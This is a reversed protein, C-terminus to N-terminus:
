VPDQGAYPDSLGLRALIRTEFGEMIEAEAINMHDYSFRHLFGHVMLHTLHDDFSKGLDVAEREVTERAIVIDGLMPGPMGGPKLPFAPFSLVTTPKDQDRWQANIERISADDTFVLSLETALKPFPQGVEACLYAAAEGLVREVLAQLAEESPWDGEEIGIQIDLEAIHDPDPM